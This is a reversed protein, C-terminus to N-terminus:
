PTAGEPAFALTSVDVETVYLNESGLVAVKIAGAGFSRVM